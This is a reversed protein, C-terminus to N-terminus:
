GARIDTAPVGGGHEDEDDEYRRVPVGAAVGAGDNGTQDGHNGETLGALIRARLEQSVARDQDHEVMWLTQASVGLKRAAAQLTLRQRRRLILILEGNTLTIM